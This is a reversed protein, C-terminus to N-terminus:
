NTQSGNKSNRKKRERAQRLEEKRACKSCYKKRSANKKFVTGCIQCRKYQNPEEYIKLEGLVNDYNRIEFVPTGEDVSFPIYIYNHEKFNEIRYLGLSYLQNCLQYRYQVRLSFVGALKWVDINNEIVMDINSKSSHFKLQPIQKAWKYYVLYIFILNRLKEDEVAMIKDLEEQYVKVVKDHVFEYDNAKDIIKDYIKDKDDDTLCEGGAMPIQALVSKIEDRNYGLFSLYRTIICREKGQTKVTAYQKNNIIEEAYKKEDFVLM